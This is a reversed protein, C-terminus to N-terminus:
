VLDRLDEGDVRLGFRVGDYRALNSSAEAPRRHLLGAPRIQHAAALCRRDGGGRRAALGIRAAVAGRDRGAHRRRPIRAARRHAHGKVGRACAARSIRARACRRQHFGESRHGAMSRAPDRLGGGHPRFARGPRAVLRVGRHGLALLPWLDAQHRRHRLVVRAPPDLRRYRHRDCGARAAGCVAAASGGSSGGPVLAAHTDQRAQWPNEVPGYASTMNSSGM